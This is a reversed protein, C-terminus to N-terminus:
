KEYTKKMKQIEEEILKLYDYTRSLSYDINSAIFQTDKKQIYKMYYIKDKIEKSNKLEDLANDLIRRKKGLIKFSVKEKEELIEISACYEDLKDNKKTEDFKMGDYKSALVDVKGRLKEIKNLIKYYQKKSNELEILAMHYDLYKM